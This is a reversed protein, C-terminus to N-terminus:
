IYIHTYLLVNYVRLSRHHLLCHCSCALVFSPCTYAHLHSMYIVLTSYLVILSTAHKKCTNESRQRWEPAEKINVTLVCMHAFLYHYHVYCIIIYIMITLDLCTYTCRQHEFFYLRGLKGTVHSCHRMAAGFHIQRFICFGNQCEKQRVDLSRITWTERHDCLSQM